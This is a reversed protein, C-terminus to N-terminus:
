SAAGTPASRGSESGPGPSRLPATKKEESSSPLWLWHISDSASEILHVHDACFGRLVWRCSFQLSFPNKGIAVAVIPAEDRYICDWCFVRKTRPPHAMQSM